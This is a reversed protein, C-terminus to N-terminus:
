PNLIGQSVSLLKKLSKDRVLFFFCVFFVNKEKNQLLIPIFNCGTRSKAIFLHFGKTYKFGM